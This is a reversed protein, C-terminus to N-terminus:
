GHLLIAGAMCRISALWAALRVSEPLLLPNLGVHSPLGLIRTLNAPNFSACSIVWPSLTTTFSLHILSGVLM